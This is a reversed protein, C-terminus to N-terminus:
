VGFRGRHANYNQLIETSSLAKSYIQLLAINGNYPATSPEQIGISYTMAEGTSENFWDGNNSGYSLTLSQSVGDIYIFYASGTSGAVIHHWGGGAPWACRVKNAGDGRLAVYEGDDNMLLVDAGGGTVIAQFIVGDAGLSEKAWVAITGQTDTAQRNLDPLHVFDGSGDFNMSGVGDTSFTANTISGTISSALNNWDTGSGLYSVKDAADLNLILGDTVIKPSHSFAM